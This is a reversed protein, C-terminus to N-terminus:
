KKKMKGDTAVRQEKGGNGSSSKEMEKQIKVLLEQVRTEKERVRLQTEEM